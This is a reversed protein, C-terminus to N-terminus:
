FEEVLVEKLLHGEFVVVQLFKPNSKKLFLKRQWFNLRPCTFHMLPFEAKFGSKWDM